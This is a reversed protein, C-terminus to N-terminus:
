KRKSLAHSASTESQDPKRLLLPYFGGMIPQEVSKSLGVLRLVAMDWLDTSEFPITEEHYSFGLEIKLQVSEHLKYEAHVSRIDAGMEVMWIMALMEPTCIFAVGQLLASFRYPNAVSEALLSDISIPQPLRDMPAKRARLNYISIFANLKADLRGMDKLVTGLGAEQIANQLKIEQAPTM